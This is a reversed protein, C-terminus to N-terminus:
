VVVVEVEAPTVSGAAELPEGERPVPLLQVILNDTPLDKSRALREITRTLDVAVSPAAKHEGAGTHPGGFFGITTVYHPDTTPTEQSLYDCNLFVRVETDEYEEPTLQRIFALVKPKEFQAAQADLMFAAGTGGIEPSIGAAALLDAGVPVSVNLPRLPEATENVAVTRRVPARGSVETLAAASMVQDLRQARAPGYVAVVPPNLGYTYGLDEPIYLDKVQASYLTGDPHIFNETFTMDTWLTDASNANGRSNWVAWIRDINGHHMMFIADQPSIATCMIGGVTCHIRNHPNAEMEGQNGSGDTIWSEDLSNQGMPRTTGFLEFDTEAYIVDMVQTQGVMNDPLSATPSMTRSPEFLPNPNGQWMPDTFAAPMQRDATWDWYPMAFDAFGTLNRCMQEYMVLYARHWPVFYWNGHPCKNFGGATTGHVNSFGIWSVPDAAPKAKMMGVFDRYAEVIPDNLALQGISRRLPPTQALARLGPITAAFASAAGAVAVSKLVTRRSVKM